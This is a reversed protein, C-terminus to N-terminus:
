EFTDDNIKSIDLHKKKENIADYEIDTICITKYGDANYNTNM